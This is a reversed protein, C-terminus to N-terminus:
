NSMNINTLSTKVKSVLMTAQLRVGVIAIIVGKFNGPSVEIVDLTM